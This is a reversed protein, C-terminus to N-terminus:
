TKQPWTWNASDPRDVGEEHTFNISEIIQNKLHEKVTTGSVQLKPVRDIVLDPERGHSASARRYADIRRRGDSGLPDAPVNL